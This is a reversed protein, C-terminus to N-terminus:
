NSLKAACVAHQDRVQIEYSQYLILHVMSLLSNVDLKLDPNDELIQKAALEDIPSVKLDVLPDYQILYAFRPIDVVYLSSSESDNLHLVNSRAVFSWPKTLLTRFAKSEDSAHKLFISASRICKAFCSIGFARPDDM